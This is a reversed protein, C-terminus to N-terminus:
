PTEEEPDAGAPRLGAWDVWIWALRLVDAVESVVGTGTLGTESEFVTVTQGPRLPGDADEYGVRAKNGRVRINPDIEVRTLAPEAAVRDRMQETAVDILADLADRAEPTLVRDGHVSVTIPEPQATAPADKVAKRCGWCTVETDPNLDWAREDPILGCATGRADGIPVTRAAHVGVTHPIAVREPYTPQDPM